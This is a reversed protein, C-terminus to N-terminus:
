LRFDSRPREHAIVSIPSTYHMTATLRSRHAFWTLNDPLVTVTHSRMPMVYLGVGSNAISQLFWRLWTSLHRKAECVVLVEFTTPIVPFAAVDFLVRMGM